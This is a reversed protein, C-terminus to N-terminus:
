SSPPGYTRHRPRINSPASRATSTQRESAVAALRYATNPELNGVEIVGSATVSKGNPSSRQEATPVTESAKTCVYSCKDADKLTLTFKLSNFAADGIALTVGPDPTGGGENKDDCSSLLGSCLVLLATGWSLFSKIM